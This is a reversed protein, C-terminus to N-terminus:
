IHVQPCLFIKMYDGADQTSTMDMMEALEMEVGTVLDSSYQAGCEGCRNARSDRHTSGPAAGVQLWHRAPHAPSSHGRGRM